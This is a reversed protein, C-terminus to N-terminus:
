LYFFSQKNRFTKGIEPSHCGDAQEKAPKYGAATVACFIDTILIPCWGIQSAWPPEQSTHFSEEIWGIESDLSLQLDFLVGLSCIKKKEDTTYDLELCASNWDVVRTEHDGLVLKSKIEVSKERVWGMWIWVINLGEFQKNSASHCLTVSTFTM